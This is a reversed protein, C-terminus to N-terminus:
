LNIEKLEYMCKEVFKDSVCYEEGAESMIVMIEPRKGQKQCAVIRDNVYRRILAIRCRREDIIGSAFMRQVLTKMDGAGAVNECVDKNAALLEAVENIIRDNLKSKVM